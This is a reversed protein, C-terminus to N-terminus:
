DESSGRRSRQFFGLPQLKDACTVADAAVVSILSPVRDISTPPIPFLDQPEPAGGALGRSGRVDEDNENRSGPKRGSPV